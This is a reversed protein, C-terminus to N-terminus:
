RCEGKIILSERYQEADANKVFDVTKDYNAKVVAEIEELTVNFFERRTNIMNVKKDDFASHLAKELGPADDSFIMAHVDFNFPVSADGLEYVREMPDLRRTMGIKYINEGFSGINSIIYVYGARKNAERYDIDELNKEIEKLQGILEEKKYILETNSPDALLKEEINELASSYHKKEKNIAKKAEEIEKQLKAEEKLREREEKAIEKEEQKKRSYEYALRLETIKLKLYEHSLKITLRENMKNLETFSKQIKSLISDYNNYKVKDILITCENNFMRLLQKKNDKIVKEGEKLSGNMTFGEGGSVAESNKVMAKQQTRINQLEEKYVCSSMLDYVPKYLGIEHYDLELNGLDIEKKLRILENELFTKEETKYEVDSKLDQLQNKLTELQVKIDSTEIQDPTLQNKLNEIQLKLKNNEKELSNAKLLAKPTFSTKNVYSYTIYLAFFVAAFIFLFPHQIGYGLLIVGIIGLLCGKNLCGDSQSENSLNNLGSM